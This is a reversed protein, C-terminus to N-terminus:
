CALKIDTCQIYNIFTINRTNQVLRDV